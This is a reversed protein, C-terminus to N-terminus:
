RRAVAIVSEDTHTFPAGTWDGFWEVDHFGAAHLLAAIETATRLRLSHAKRGHQDGRRWQLREHSIGTVPDFRRRVRVDTGDPLTWADRDAYHAIVDDRHMSEFLLAGGPRLVRRAERLAAIDEDDDLFLGLSTFVNIVADFSVDAFPLARIDAAACSGRPAHRLLDLSLDAGVAHCGADALLCTHRGWGCPADLVRAGEHLGLLERMGAVERRSRAEDFLPDHMAFYAADFYTRWWPARSM